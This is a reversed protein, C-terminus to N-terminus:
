TATPIACSCRPTATPASSWRAKPSPSTTPRSRRSRRPRRPPRPAVHTYGPYKVPVDMLINKGANLDNANLILNIEVGDKNRIIAVPDGEALHSMEFGLARYFALARDTDSVRIGIHDVGTVPVTKAAPM